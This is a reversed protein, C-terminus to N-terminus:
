PLILTDLHLSRTLLPLSALAHLNPSLMNDSLKAPCSTCQPAPPQGPCREQEHLVPSGHFIGSCHLPTLLVTVGRVSSELKPQREREKVRQRQQRGPKGGVQKEQGKSPLSHPGLPLCTHCLHWRGSSAHAAQGGRRGPQAAGRM